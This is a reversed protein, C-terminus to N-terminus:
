WRCSSRARPTFRRAFFRRPSIARRTTTTITSGPKASASANPIPRSRRSRPLTRARSTPEHPHTGITFYVDEFRDALAVLADGRAVRTSITIFREVGAERARDLVGEIDPAFDPFDLHCHSDILKM